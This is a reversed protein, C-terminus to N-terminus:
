EWYKSAIYDLFWDGRTSQNSQGAEKQDKEQEQLLMECLHMYYVGFVDLCHCCLHHLHGMKASLSVFFFVATQRMTVCMQLM